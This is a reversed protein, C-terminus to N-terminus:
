LLGEFSLTRGRLRGTYHRYFTYVVKPREKTNGQGVYEAPFVGSDRFVGYVAQQESLEDLLEQVEETSFLIRGDPMKEM